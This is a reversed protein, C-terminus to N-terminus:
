FRYSVPSPQVTELSLTGPGGREHVVGVGGAKFLVLNCVGWKFINSLLVMNQVRNWRTVVVDQVGEQGLRWCQLNYTGDRFNGPFFGLKELKGMRLAEPDEVRGNKDYAQLKGDVKQVFCEAGWELTARYVKGAEVQNGM